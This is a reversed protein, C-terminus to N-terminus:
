DVQGCFNAQVTEFLRCEYVTVEEFNKAKLVQVRSDQITPYQSELSDCEKVKKLDIPERARHNQACDYAQFGQNTSFNLILMIIQRIM